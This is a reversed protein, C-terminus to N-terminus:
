TSLPEFRMHEVFIPPTALTTEIEAQELVEAPAHRENVSTLWLPM